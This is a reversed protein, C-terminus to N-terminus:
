APWRGIGLWETAGQQLLEAEAQLWLAVPDETGSPVHGNHARAHVQGLAADVEREADLWNELDGRGPSQRALGSARRAIALRRHAPLLAGLDLGSPRRPTSAGPAAARGANRPTFTM